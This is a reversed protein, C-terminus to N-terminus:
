RNVAYVDVTKAVVLTMALLGLGLLGRLLLPRYSVDLGLARFRVLYYCVGAGVFAVGYTALRLRDGIGCEPRRRQQSHTTKELAEQVEDREKLREVKEQTEVAM